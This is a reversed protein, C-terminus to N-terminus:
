ALEGNAPQLTVGQIRVWTLALEPTILRQDLMENVSRCVADVEWYEGNWKLIRNNGQVEAITYCPQLQDKTAQQMYFVGKTHKQLM